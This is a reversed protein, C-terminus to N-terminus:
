ELVESISTPSAEGNVHEDISEFVADAVGAKDLLVTAGQIAPKGPMFFEGVTEAGDVVDRVKQETEESAGAAQALSGAM